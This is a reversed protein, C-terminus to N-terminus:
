PEGMSANPKECNIMWSTGFRDFGVGFRHAWFTEGLPMCVEGGETLAAFVRGAKGPDDIAVHISVGQQKEAKGPQCDSGMLVQGDVVLRVHAIRDRMEAPMQDGCDPMEGYRLMMEIEGGLVDKYFDFAEACTGDFMLYPNMLRM